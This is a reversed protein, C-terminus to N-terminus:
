GRPLADRQICEDLTFSSIQFNCKYIININYIFLIMLMFLLPPPPPVKEADKRSTTSMNKALEEMRAKKDVVRSDYTMTTQSLTTQPHGQPVTRNAVDSPTLSPPPPALFPSPGAGPFDFKDGKLLVSPRRQLMTRTGDQQSVNNNYNGLRQQDEKLRQEHKEKLKAIDKARKDKEEKKEEKKEGKKEKEKEPKASKRMM